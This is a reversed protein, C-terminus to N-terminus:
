SARTLEKFMKELKESHNGLITDVTRYGNIILSRRLEMDKLIREFMNVLSNITPEVVLANYENILYSHKVHKKNTVVIAGADMCELPIVGPHRSFMFYLCVDSNEYLSRLENASVWGLCKFEKDCITKSGVVVVEIDHREKLKKLVLYLLEPANRATGPRLYTLIRRMQTNDPERRKSARIIFPPFYLCLMSYTKEYWEKIEYANTLGIFGFHYTYEAFYKLVGAPYFETEEDQILYVKANTNHFRLLPYTTVWYTAIAITSFPLSDIDQPKSVPFVKANIGNYRLAEEVVKVDNENVSIVAFYLQIGKSQFFRALGLINRPGASPEKRFPNIFFMVSDIKHPGRELWAKNLGFTHRLDDDNVDFFGYRLMLYEYSELRQLFRYRSVVSSGVRFAIRIISNKIDQLLMIM